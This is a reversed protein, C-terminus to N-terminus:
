EEEIPLIQADPSIRYICIHNKPQSCDCFQRFNGQDTLAVIVANSATGGSTLFMLVDKQSPTLNDYTPMPVDFGIKQLEKAAEVLNEPLRIKM